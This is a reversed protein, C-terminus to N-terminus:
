CYRIELKSEDKLIVDQNSHHLVDGLVAMLVVAVILVDVM